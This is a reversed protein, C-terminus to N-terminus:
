WTQIDDKGGLQGDKGFSYVLVSESIFKGPELPDEIRGDQDADFKVYFANGWSDFLGEVESRKDGDRYVLGGNKRRKSVRFNAFSIRRRNQVSDGAEEKALLITLLKAGAEGESRIEEGRVGLDPFSKYEMEFAQIAQKLARADNSAQLREPRRPPHYGGALWIVFTVGLVLLLFKRLEPLHDLMTWLSSPDDAM